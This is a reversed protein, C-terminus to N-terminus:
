WPLRGAVTEPLRFANTYITPFRSNWGYQLDHRRNADLIEQVTFAGVMLPTEQRQKLNSKLRYAAAGRRSLEVEIPNQTPLDTPKFLM